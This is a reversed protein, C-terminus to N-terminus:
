LLLALKKVALHKPGANLFVGVAESRSITAFLHAILVMVYVEWLTKTRTRQFGDSSSAQNLDGREVADKRM